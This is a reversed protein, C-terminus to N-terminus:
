IFRLWYLWQVFTYLIFVGVLPKRIKAVSNATLVVFFPFLVSLLRLSYGKTVVTMAVTTLLILTMLALINLQLRKFNTMFLISAFIWFSLYAVSSSLDKDGTRRDGIYSLVASLAPGIALSVFGATILIKNRLEYLQGNKRYENGLWVSFIYLGIFLVASTHVFAAVFLLAIRMLRFKSFLAATIFIMSWAQRLQIFGFDVVLPNFLFLLYIPKANALIILSYVFVLGFSIYNFFSEASILETRVLQDLTYHWLWEGKLYDLVGDFTLYTLVSQGYNSYDLYNQKDKFPIGYLKEWPIFVYIAAFCAALLTHKWKLQNKYLGKNARLNM